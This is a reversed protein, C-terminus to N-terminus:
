FQDFYINIITVICYNFIIQRVILTLIVLNNKISYVSQDFTQKHLIISLYIRIVVIVMASFRLFLREKDSDIRESARDRSAVHRSPVPMPQRLGM